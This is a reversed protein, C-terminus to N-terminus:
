VLLLTMVLPERSVPFRQRSACAAVAKKQNPKAAKAAEATSENMCLRPLALMRDPPIRLPGVMLWTQTVVTPHQTNRRLGIRSASAYSVVVCPASESRYYKTALSSRQRQKLAYHAISGSPGKIHLM